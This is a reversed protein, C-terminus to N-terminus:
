DELFRIADRLTKLVADTTEKSDNKRITFSFVRLVNGERKAFIRRSSGGRKPKMGQLERRLDSASWGKERIRQIWSIPDAVGAASLANAHAMSVEDAEVLTQLSIPFDLLAEYRKLQKESLGFHAAITDLKCGRHKALRIANAREIPKLNRRAVNKVFAIEHAAEASVGRRVIARVTPWGLERIALARRFGDIIRHPKSDTLDVPELQGERAIADRLGNTNTTLRYQFTADSVDIREIPISEIVADHLGDVFEPHTGKEKREKTEISKAPAVAQAKRPM